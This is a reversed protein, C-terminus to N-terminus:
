RNKAKFTTENEETYFAFQRESCIIFFYINFLNIFDFYILKKIKVEVHKICM